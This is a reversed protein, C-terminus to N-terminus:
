VLYVVVVVVHKWILRIVLRERWYGPSLGLRYYGFFGNTEVM